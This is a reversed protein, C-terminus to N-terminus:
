TESLLARLRTAFEAFSEDARKRIMPDGLTALRGTVQLDTAIALRTGDGTPDLTITLTTSVATGTTRDRGSAHARIRNPATLEDVHIDLPVDLRFPGIRQKMVAHYREQPAQETVNECGPICAAVRQFDTM